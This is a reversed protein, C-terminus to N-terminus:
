IGSKESFRQWYEYPIDQDQALLGLFQMIENVTLQSYGSNPSDWYMQVICADLLNKWYEKDHKDLMHNIMAVSAELRNGKKLSTRCANCKVEFFYTTREVESHNNQVITGVMTRLESM